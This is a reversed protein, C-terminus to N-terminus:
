GDLYLYIYINFCDAITRATLLSLFFSSSGESSSFKVELIKITEHYNLRTCLTDFFTQQQLKGKKVCSHIQSSARIHGPPHIIKKWIRSLFLMLASIYHRRWHQPILLADLRASLLDCVVVYPPQNLSLWGDDRTPLRFLHIIGADGACCEDEEDPIVTPVLNQRVCSLMIIRKAKLAACWTAGDNIIVSQMYFSGAQFLFSIRFGLPAM